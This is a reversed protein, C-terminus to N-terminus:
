AEDDFLFGSALSDALPPPSLPEEPDDVGSVDLPPLVDLPLVDLPLVGLPLAGLPPEALLLEVLPPEM